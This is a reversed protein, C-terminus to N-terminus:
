RLAEGVCQCVNRAAVALPARRAEITLRRGKRSPRLSVRAPSASKTRSLHLRLQRRCGVNKEVVNVVGAACVGDVPVDVGAGQEPTKRSDDSKSRARRRRAPKIRVPPKQEETKGGFFQMLDGFTRMPEKGKKM